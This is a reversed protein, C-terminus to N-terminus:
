SGLLDAQCIQPEGLCFSCGIEEQDVKRKYIYIALQRPIERAFYSNWKFCQQTGWSVAKRRGLAPLVSLWVPWDESIICVMLENRSQPSYLGGLETGKQPSGAQRKIGLIAPGPVMTGAEGSEQWGEEMSKQVVEVAKKAKAQVSKVLLNM